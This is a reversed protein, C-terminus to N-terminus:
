SIYHADYPFKVTQVCRTSPRSPVLLSGFLSVVAFFCLWAPVLGSVVCVLRKKRKRSAMGKSGPPIQLIWILDMASSAEAKRRLHDVNFYTTSGVNHSNLASKALYGFKAIRTRLPAHWSSEPCTLVALVHPRSLRSLATTRLYCFIPSVHSPVLRSPSFRCMHLCRKVSVQAMRTHACALFHAFTVTCASQASCTRALHTYTCQTLM